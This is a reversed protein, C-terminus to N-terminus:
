LVRRLQSEAERFDHSAAWVWGGSWLMLFLSIPWYGTFLGVVGLAIVAFVLGIAIVHERITATVISGAPSPTVRVEVVSQRGRGRRLRVLHWVGDRGEGTFPPEDSRGWQWRLSERWTMPPRVVRSIRRDTEDPAHFTEIMVVRRPWM